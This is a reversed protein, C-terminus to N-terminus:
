IRGFKIREIHFELVEDVLNFWSQTLDEAMQCLHKHADAGKGWACAEYGEIENVFLSLNDDTDRIGFIDVRLVQNAILHPAIERLEKIVRQAFDFFVQDPAHKFPSKRGQNKRPNCFRPEGNFCIVKVETNDPVRPQIVATSYYGFIRDNNMFEQVAKRIGSIGRAYKRCSSGTSQSLKVVFQDDNHFLPVNAIKGVFRRFCFNCM